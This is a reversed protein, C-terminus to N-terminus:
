RGNRTTRTPKSAREPAGGGVLDFLGAGGETLAEAFLFAGVLGAAAPGIGVDAVGEVLRKFAEAQGVGGSGEAVGDGDITQNGDEFGDADESRGKSPYHQGTRSRRIRNGTESTDTRHPSRSAPGRVFELDQCLSPAPSACHKRPHLPLFPSRVPRWCRINSFFEVRPLLSVYRHHAQFWGAIM